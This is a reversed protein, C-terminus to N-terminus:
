WIRPDLLYTETKQPIGDIAWAFPASKNICLNHDVVSVYSDPFTEKLKLQHELYKQKKQIEGQKHGIAALLQNVFFNLRNRNQIDSYEVILKNLRLEIEEPSGGEVLETTLLTITIRAHVHAFSNSRALSQLSYLEEYTGERILYQIFSIEFLCDIRRKECKPYKEFVSLAEKLMIIARTPEEYFIIKAYDMKAYAEYDSRELRNSENIANQYADQLNPCGMFFKYLMARNIFNLYANVTHWPSENTIHNLHKKAYSLEEEVSVFDLAYLENTILESHAEHVVGMESPSLSMITAISCIKKLYKSSGAHTKAYKISQAYIYLLELDDYQYATQPTRDIDPLLAIALNQAAIYQSKAYYGQCIEKAQPRYHTHLKNSPDILIALINSKLIPSNINEKICFQLFSNLTDMYKLSFTIERFANLYIDHYPKLLSNEEKFLNDISFLHCVRDFKSSFFEQLLQAPVGSEIKYVVYLIDKYQCHLIKNKALDTDNVNTEQYAKSYIVARRERPAHLINVHALKKLLLELHLVSIPLAFLQSLKAIDQNFCFRLSNYVDSNSIGSLEWRRSCLKQLMNEMGSSHFENPRYAVIMIQSYNRSTFETFIYQCLSKHRKTVKQFDDLVIYSLNRRFMPSHNPFLAMNKEKMTNSVTDIINLATIQDSTGERLQLFLEFLLGSQNKILTKFAQESLDYLFGFNIFLILKCLSSANESEKNSFALQLIETDDEMLSQLLQNLLYTKGSGGYGAIGIIANKYIDVTLTSYMEQIFRQQEEYVVRVYESEDIALSLVDDFITESADSQIRLPVTGKCPHKAIFKVLVSNYGPMAIDEYISNPLLKITDTLAELSYNTRETSLINLYLFYETQVHLKKVGSILAPSSLTANLVCCDTIEIKCLYELENSGPVGFFLRQIDPNAKLWGTLVFGDVFKIDIKHPRLIATARQVFSSAIRGNTVFLIFVVEGDLIGSVLTSDMHSKPISSDPKSTYKAECWGKYYHNIGDIKDRFEADTNGDWSKGTPIWNYQSYNDKAYACALEEFKSDDILSWDM